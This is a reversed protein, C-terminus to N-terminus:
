GVEECVGVVEGGEKDVWEVDDVSVNEFVFM